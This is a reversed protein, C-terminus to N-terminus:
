LVIAEFLFVGPIQSPTSPCMSLLQLSSLSPPFWIIMNENIYFLKFIVVSIFSFDYHFGNRHSVYNCWYVTDLSCPLLFVLHKKSTSFPLCSMESSLKCVLEQWSCLIWFFLCILFYYLFLDLFYLNLYKFFSFEKLM